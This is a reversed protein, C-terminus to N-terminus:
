ELYFSSSNSFPYPYELAKVKEGWSNCREIEKKKGNFLKENIIHISGVYFANDVIIETDFSETFSYTIVNRFKYPSKDEGFNISVPNRTKTAEPSLRM